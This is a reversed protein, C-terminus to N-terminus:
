RWPITDDPRREPQPMLLMSKDGYHIAKHTNSSVCIVNEPDFLCPNRELIDKETIPNLHHLVLGVQIERDPIALDCGQDRIIMDRRFKKWESSSYLAQNLYRNFGFTEAGVRGGMALYNYREIFTPLKVLESYYKISSM